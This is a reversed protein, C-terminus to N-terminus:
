LDCSKNCWGPSLCADIPIGSWHVVQTAVRPTYKMANQEIFKHFFGTYTVKLELHHDGDQHAGCNGQSGM